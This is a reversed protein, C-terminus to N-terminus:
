GKTFSNGDIRWPATARKGFIGGEANTDRTQVWLFYDVERCLAWRPVEGPKTAFVAQCFRGLREDTTTRLIHDVADVIRDMTWASLRVFEKNSPITKVDARTRLCDLNLLFRSIPMTFPYIFLGPDMGHWISMEVSLKVVQARMAQSDTFGPVRRLRRELLRADYGIPLWGQALQFARGSYQSALYRVLNTVAEDILPQDPLGHVTERLKAYLSRGPQSFELLTKPAFLKSDAKGLCDYLSGFEVSMSILLQHIASEIANSILLFNALEEPSFGTPKTARHHEYSPQGGEAWARVIDNAVSGCAQRNTNIPVAEDERTTHWYANIWGPHFSLRQWLPMFLYSASLFLRPLANTHILVAFVSYAVAVWVSHQFLQKSCEFLPKLFPTSEGSPTPEGSPTTVILAGGILGLISAFFAPLLLMYALWLPLRDLLFFPWGMGNVSERARRIWNSRKLLTAWVQIVSGAIPFLLAIFKIALDTTV